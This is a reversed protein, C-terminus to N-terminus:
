QTFYHPGRIRITKNKNKAECNLLRVKLGNDLEAQAKQTSKAINFM